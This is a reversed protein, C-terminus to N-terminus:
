KVLPQQDVFEDLLQASYNLQHVKPPWRSDAEYSVDYKRKGSGVELAKCNPLDIIARTNPPVEVDVVLRGERIEWSCAARGYPTRHSVACHTITGGPRPRIRFVKWGPKEIILGGM